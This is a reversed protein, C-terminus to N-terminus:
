FHKELVCLMENRLVFKVYLRVQEDSILMYKKGTFCNLNAM